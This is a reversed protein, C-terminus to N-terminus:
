WGGGGGGGGGGGSSGGGGAGSSSGPPTAASSIASSLSSGVVNAMKAPNSADWNGSYWRPRYNQGQQDRIKRFVDEFQEAWPQEVDLALAFPLYAEFLEPTKEPPNKLNLDDKEALELYLRFGQVRDLLKRGLLTPAKLLWSFMGVAVASAALTLGIAITLENLVVVAILAGVLLMIAPLLFKGNTVFHKHRHYRDLTVKHAGMARQLLTHNDNQLQVTDGSRFLHSHLVAEGPALTEDPKKDTASLIYAEGLNNIEIYGKVALNLVAATMATKDYGMRAIYRISAPSFGDPPQYHPFIVGPPPDMGVKRWALFLYLLSGIGASLAILLGLNQQLLFAANEAITPEYVHGKPWAVVVTLGERAALPRSAEIEAQDYFNVAARYAQEKSGAPGTYGEVRIDAAAVSDPLTISASTQEIPFDWGNGTVNWYLEDHDEFFGLMRTARYEFAYEYEGPGLFVDASGAYVRVGNARREMHRAESRGDRRVDLLDFGVRVRNGLRDKYDTPFDRYIGRRIARGEARVKITEIVRMSGDANVTIDSHYRLIREDASAALSVASGILLMTAALLRMFRHM